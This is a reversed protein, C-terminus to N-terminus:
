LARAVRFGAYTLRTDTIHRNRVASRLIRPNNLWSGGRSVRRGCDGGLWPSGDAPAGRYNEHWCDETWEWVNGHVDHLGFANPAFTGVPTTRERYTGRRGSGYALNGYNAQNTSITTGTHFPTTTGARAAYEWEAESPLRYSAGTERSLWGAYARADEWSVNIM